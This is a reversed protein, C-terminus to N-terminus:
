IGQMWRGWNQPFARQQVLSEFNYRYQFFDASVVKGFTVRNVYYVWNMLQEHHLSQSLEIWGADCVNGICSKCGYLYEYEGSNNEAIMGLSFNINEDRLIDKKCSVCELPQYDDNNVNTVYRIQNPLGYKQLVHSSIHPLYDSIRSKDYVLFPLSVNRELEELRTQLGSSVVTSYFGIFGDAGHQSVRDLISPEDSLGVSSTSTHYHKCSVLWKKNDKEVLADKGGDTGRSPYTLTYFGLCALFDVAFFEWEEANMNGFFGDYVNM